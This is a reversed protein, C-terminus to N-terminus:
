ISSLINSLAEKNIDSVSSLALNYKETNQLTVMFKQFENFINIKDLSTNSYPDEDLEDDFEDNFNFQGTSNMLQNQFEFDGSNFENLDNIGDEDEDDDFNGVQNINFTQETAWDKDSFEKRRKELDKIAIPIQIFLKCINEGSKPLLNDLLMSNLSELDISMFSIYGLISLKIDFVRKFKNTLEFWENFFTEILNNEILVKLTTNPDIILSSIINNIFSILYKNNNKTIKNKVEILFKMSYNILNPLYKNNINSLIFTTALDSAYVLDNFGSSADEDTDLEFTTIILKYFKDQINISNKITENGYILYNKLAPLSDELYLIIDGDSLLSDCLNDFLNWMIPSVNRTLFLTNEILESAEAYFDDISLKFILEIVKSYYIELKGIIEISNEFYLLITIMTNLIGLATSTKDTAVSDYDDIESYAANSMENLSKLLEIVKYSLQEMLQEAFPELDSPYSEVLEQMVAPLIDSDFKNSLEMLKEMIQLLLNKLLIKFEDLGIFAQIALSAQIQCPLGNNNNSFCSIIGNYLLNMSNSNTFNLSDFKSILNCTRAKLFNFNSNFNPIIFNILFPEIEQIIPNDDTSLKYSIPSLFKMISEKSKAVEYTENLNNLENFKNYIFQFMPVLYDVRKEVLTFLFSHLSDEGTNEDIIEFIKHIYEEPEEDYLELDEDKPTFLKFSIETILYNFHPEILQFTSKKLLCQEFLLILNYLCCDSLFKENNSWKKLSDIYVNILNPLINNKFNIRFEDYQYKGSLSKTGYKQFLRYLNFYSWKQAKLYGSQSNENFNTNIINVQFTIWNIIEQNEQLPKPFDLYIVFKYCKIILKLIEANEFVNENSNLLQNGINLLSPFFNIIIPDLNHCRKDNHEWRFNRCLETFSFIGIYLSNIDNNSNNILSLINDLLNSWNSPYDFKIIQTLAPLLQNRISKDLQTMTILLKERIVPREDLDIPSDANWWNNVIQNKFYISCSTKVIIEVNSNSLIDLCANLFGLSSSIQSLQDESNKRIAPDAQLTGLFLDHLLGVDM